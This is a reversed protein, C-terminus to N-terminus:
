PSVPHPRPQPRARHRLRLAPEEVVHWSLAALVATAALACALFGLPGLRAAGVLALAQEVPFGYIYVGYSYDNRGGIARYRQPLRAAAWFLLYVLAPQGLVAFGGWRLSAATTLAAALALADDVPIREAHLRLAAGLLFALGLNAALHASLQGAAPLAVGPGGAPPVGPPLDTAGSAILAWLALAALLVVPRRRLLGLAALVGAVLYCLLEYKLSWLAGNLSLDFNTGRRVGEAIVGSVDWGTNPSTSGLSTLYSAPGDPRSWFGDLSGHQWRYLAPMLVVACFLLSGCLGPVIRLLRHWAYRGAPLRRASETIMFGSLAFFGLVAAKGLDTQRGSWLWLPDPHGWGIPFVHSVVVAAALLLRLAGFGNSRGHTLEALSGRPRLLVTARIAVGPHDPRPPARM